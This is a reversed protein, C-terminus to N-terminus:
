NETSKVSFIQGLPIQIEPWDLGHKKPKELPKGEVLNNLQSNAYEGLRKGFTRTERVPEETTTAGDEELPQLYKMPDSVSVSMRMAPHDNTTNQALTRDPDPTMGFEKQPLQEAMPNEKRSNDAIITGRDSPTLVAGKQIRKLTSSSTPRQVSQLSEENIIAPKLTIPGKEPAINVIAKPQVSLPDLDETRELWFYSGISFLLTISAAIWIYGKRGRDRNEVRAEIEDWVRSSPQIELDRLHESFHKDMKEM